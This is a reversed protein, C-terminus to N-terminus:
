SWGRSRIESSATVILTEVAPLQSILRLGKRPGSVSVATALADAEMVTAARVSVSRTHRQPTGACPDILHNLSRDRGMRSEYDGSTAVAGNSIKIIGPYNGQKDPDQVAITWPRSGPACATRIDGGADVIHTSAGMESLVESARDVIRGKAIGDLTAAMGQRNFGANAGSIKLGGCDVLALAQALEARDLDELGNSAKIFDLLPLVTPDFAGGTLVHYRVSRKLVDLLEPPANRIRGQDNLVSLASSPNHRDMVAILREMEEFARGAAEQALTASEGAVTITAFTGM